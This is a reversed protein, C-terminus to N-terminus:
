FDFAHGASSDDNDEQAYSFAIRLFQVTEHSLKSLQAVVGQIESCKMLSAPTSGTALSESVALHSIQDYTSSM